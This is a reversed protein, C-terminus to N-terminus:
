SNCFSSIGCRLCDRRGSCCIAERNQLKQLEQVGAVGEEKQEIKKTKRKKRRDFITKVGRRTSWLIKPNLKKIEV